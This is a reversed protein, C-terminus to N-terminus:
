PPFSNLIYGEHIHFFFINALRSPALKARNTASRYNQMETVRAFVWQERKGKKMGEEEKRGRAKETRIFGNREIEM